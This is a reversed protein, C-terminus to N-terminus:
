ETEGNLQKPTEVKVSIKRSERVASLVRSQSMLKREHLERAVPSLQAVDVSAMKKHARFMGRRKNHFDKDNYFSSESDVLIRLGIEQNHTATFGRKDFIKQRLNIVAFAFKTTGYKHGTIKELEENSIVDGKELSDFDIPYKETSIM